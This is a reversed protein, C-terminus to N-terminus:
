MSHSHATSPHKQVLKICLSLNVHIFQDGHLWESSMVPHNATPLLAIFDTVEKKAGTAEGQSLEALCIGLPPSSSQWPSIRFLHLSNGALPDSPYSPALCIKPSSPVRSSYRGHQSTAKHLPLDLGQCFICHLQGCSCFWLAAEFTLFWVSGSERHLMQAPHFSRSEKTM